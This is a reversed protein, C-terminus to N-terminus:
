NPPQCLDLVISLNWIANSLIKLIKMNKQVGPRLRFLGIFYLRDKRGDKRREM